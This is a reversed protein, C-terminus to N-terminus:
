LVLAGQKRLQRLLTKHLPHPLHLRSLADKLADKPKNGMILSGIGSAAAGGLIANGGFMSAAAPGGFYGIAAPIAIKAIDDLLGM